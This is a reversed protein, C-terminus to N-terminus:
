LKKCKMAPCIFPFIFLYIVPSMLFIIDAISRSQQMSYDIVFLSVFSLIFLIFTFLTIIGENKKM